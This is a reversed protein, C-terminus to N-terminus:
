SDESQARREAKQARDVRWAVFFMGVIALGILPAEWAMAVIGGVIMMVPIFFVLILIGGFLLGLGAKDTNRM